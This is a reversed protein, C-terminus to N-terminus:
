APRIGESTFRSRWSSSSFALSLRMTASRDSSLAMSCSTSDFFSQPRGALPGKDILHPLRPIDRDALRAIRKPDVPRKVVVLALATILGVQLQPDLLDALGADSIPIPPHM